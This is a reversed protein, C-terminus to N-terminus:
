KLKLISEKNITMQFFLEDYTIIKHNGDQKIKAIYPFKKTITDNVFYYNSISYTNIFDFLFIRSEVSNLDNIAFAFM